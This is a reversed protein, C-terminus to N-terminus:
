ETDESTDIRLEDIIEETTMSTNLTYTGEFFEAEYVICRLKFASVDEILGNYELLTGVEESSADKPINIEVSTGPSDEMATDAFVTYSLQYAKTCAFILFVILIIFVIIKIFTKGMKNKKIETSTQTKKNTQKMKKQNM